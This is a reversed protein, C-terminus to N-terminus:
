NLLGYYNEKSKKLFLRKLILSWRSNYHTILHHAEDHSKALKALDQM